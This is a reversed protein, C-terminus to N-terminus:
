KRLKKLAARLIEENTANPISIQALTDDILKVKFGLSKLAERVEDYQDPNAESGTALQGKLDLIIQAAAKGGIGPLKKLYTVNNAAIANFLDDATTASLANLATRPGIGKVSILSVFAEKERISSFGALYQEDERVVNYLYIKTVEGLVYDEKHSVYVQYGIDNVEVVVYDDGIYSIPGKFSFYM